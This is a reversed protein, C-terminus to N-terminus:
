CRGASFDVISGMLLSFSASSVPLHSAAQTLLLPESSRIGRLPNLFYKRVGPMNNNPSHHSWISLLATVLSCITDLACSCQPPPPQRFFLKGLELATFAVPQARYQTAAYKQMGYMKRLVAVQTISSALATERKM